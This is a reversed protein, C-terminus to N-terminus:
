IISWGGDIVLNHGTVYEAAGSALYLAGGVIDDQSAMRKLPTKLIYRKVFSAPQKDYVGGPSICNVRINYKGYYSALYRTFNIIGGKIVAYAAPMTMATNKYLSFDPAKFGYISSFNIISGTKKKKMYEAAARACMCYGNLHMDINKKWSVLPIDELKKGWDETKPYASNVWVDLHAFRKNIFKIIGSVSNEKTIDLSYFFVSLGEKQLEAAINKGQYKDWDAVIVTANYQAFSRVLAKGISGAGGTIVTVKNKLDFINKYKM